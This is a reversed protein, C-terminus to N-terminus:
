SEEPCPCTCTVMTGGDARRSRTLMGGLRKARHRMIRMGLGSGGAAALRFGKGDDVINLVLQRNVTSCIIEIQKARGHRVANAVAEQAIRFLDAAQETLAPVTKSCTLRCDIGLRRRSLTVLDELASRISSGEPVPSLDRALQRAEAMIEEVAGIAAGVPSASLDAVAETQPAIVQKLAEFRRLMRRLVRELDRGLQTRERERSDTLAQELEAQETIDRIYVVVERDGSKVIRSQVQVTKGAIEVDYELVQVQESRIAETAYHKHEEAAEAGFLDAINRGVIDQPRFPMSAGEAVHLDLYNGDVDMRFIVDPHVESVARLRQQSVRLVKGTARRDTVDEAYVAVVDDSMPVCTLIMRRNAGSVFRLETETVIVERQDACRHLNAPIDPRDPYLTRARQGLLEKITSDPLEAAARNHAILEFDDDQRRWLYAPAPTNEFHARFLENQLANFSEAEPGFISKDGFM